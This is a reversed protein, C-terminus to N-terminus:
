RIVDDGGSFEPLEIVRGDMLSEELVVTEAQVIRDNIDPGGAIVYFDLEAAAPPLLGVLLADRSDPDPGSATLM